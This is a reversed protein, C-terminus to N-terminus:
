AASAGKRSARWAIALAIVAVILGAGGVLLGMTTARNAADLAAAANANAADIAGADPVAARLEEIRGDLRDFRDAVEALTPVQVPFEVESSARVSSFTEEGSTMEVDVAQDAISGTFHFTYEGPTTPLLQAVYVGPQGFAGELALASTEQDATTVVVSLAGDALDEIPEGTEHDEITLEVANPQGVFTPEDAWGITLSYEGVEVHGHAQVAAPAALSAALLGATAIFRIARQFRM